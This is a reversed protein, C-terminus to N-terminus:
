PRAPASSGSAPRSIISPPSFTHFIAAAVAVAVVAAAAAADFCTSFILLPFVYKPRKGACNCHCFNVNFVDRFSLGARLM